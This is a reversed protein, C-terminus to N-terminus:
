NLVRVVKGKLPDQVYLGNELLTTQKNLGWCPKFLPRWDFYEYLIATEKLLIFVFDHSFYKTITANNLLLPKLVIYLGSCYQVATV